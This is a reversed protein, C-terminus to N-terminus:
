KTHVADEIEKLVTDVIEPIKREVEDTLELGYDVEAPEVGIIVVEEPLCNLKEAIALADILGVQHLSIKSSEQGALIDALKDREAARFKARYITGPEGGARLADIVILKEASQAFLLFDLAATGGDIIEVDASFYKAGCNIAPDHKVRPEMRLLQAVRAGVGEDRLLINGLGLVLIRKSRGTNPPDPEAMPYLESSASDTRQRRGRRSREPCAETKQAESL